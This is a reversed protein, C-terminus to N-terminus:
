VEDDVVLEGKALILKLDLLTLLKDQYPMEGTLYDGSVAAVATPLPTIAAPDAYIVEPVSDVLLAVAFDDNGNIVIAKSDAQLPQPPLHIIHRMDILTIVNGRLNLCGLVYDPTCPIPVIDGINAFERVALLDIGFYEGNLVVVALALYGSADERQERWKLKEARSAFVAHDGPNARSYFDRYDGPASPASFFAQRLLAAVNLLTIVKEDKTISGVLLPEPLEANISTSLLLANDQVSDASCVDYIESVILGFVQGDIALLIIGDSAQYPPCAQRFRPRVDLVPILSGRLDFVGVVDASVTALLTLEPLYVVEQVLHAPVAYYFPNLAFVFYTENNAIM